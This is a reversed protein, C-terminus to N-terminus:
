NTLHFIWTRNGYIFLTTKTYFQSWCVLIPARDNTSARIFLADTFNNQPCDLHSNWYNYSLYYISKALALPSAQTLLNIYNVEFLLSTVMTFFDVQLQAQLLKFCTVQWCLVEFFTVEVPPSAQAWSITIHYQDASVRNQCNNIPWLETTFYM